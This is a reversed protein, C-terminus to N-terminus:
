GPPKPGGSGGSVFGGQVLLEDGLMDVENEWGQEKGQVDLAEEMLKCLGQGKV